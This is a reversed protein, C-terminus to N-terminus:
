MVHHHLTEALYPDRAPIQANKRLYMRVSLLFAAFFGIFLGIDIWSLSFSRNMTPFIMWNLDIWAGILVVVAVGSLYASNRKAARPLLLLFPAAFRLIPLLISVPLWGPVQRALFFGTEEPLNAYWILLYQSVGIYAWFITFGFLYKGLDHFHDPTIAEFYGYKQLQRVVLIAMAFTAQVFGIFVYVGFITSFWKPDLSMITDMAFLTFLPAFVVLFIASLKKQKGLIEKDGTADQAQSNKLMKTVLLLTLVFFIVVRATFFGTTFFGAKHHLHHDNVMMEHDTWPYLKKLGFLMVITFAFAPVLYSAFAEPIRRVAVVWGSSSLYHIVLIFAGGIGMGMFMMHNLLYARWMRTPNLILGGFFTLVGLIFLAYVIMDTRSSTSLTKTDLAKM